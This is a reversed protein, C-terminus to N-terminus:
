LGETKLRAIIKKISGKTDGKLVYIKDIEKKAKLLELVPNRGVVYVDKM